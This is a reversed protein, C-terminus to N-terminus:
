ATGSIADLMRGITSHLRRRHDRSDSKRGLGHIEDNVARRLADDDRM